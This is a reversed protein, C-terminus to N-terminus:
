RKAKPKTHRGPLQAGRRRLDARLNYLARRDSTSHPAVVRDGQPSTIVYHDGTSASVTWGPLRGVHTLLAKLDKQCSM